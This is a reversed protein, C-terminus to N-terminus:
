PVRLIHLFHIVVDKLSHHRRPFVSGEIALLPSLLCRSINLNLDLFSLARFLQSLLGSPSVCLTEPVAWM